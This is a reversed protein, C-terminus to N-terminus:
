SARQATALWQRGAAANVGFRVLGPFVVQELTAEVVRRREGRELHGLGALAADSPDTASEEFLEGSLTDRLMAPLHRGIAERATASGAQALYAWGLRGHRVEDRLISQMARRGVSDTAREVLVGLLATSLTETVCSLAVIEFLLADRPSLERPAAWRWPPVDAHTTVAGFHLGMGACLDAHRREDSAAEHALAAITMPAGAAELERALSDFRRAAELEASRRRIWARAARLRAREPALTMTPLLGRRRQRLRLVGRLLTRRQHLRREGLLVPLWL